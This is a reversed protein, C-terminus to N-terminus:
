QPVQGREIAMVSQRLGILLSMFGNKVAVALADIKKRRPKVTVLQPAATLDLGVLRIFGVPLPWLRKGTRM